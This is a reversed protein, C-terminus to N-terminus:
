LSAPNISEEIVEHDSEPDDLHARTLRFHWRDTNRIFNKKRRMHEYAANVSSAVGIFDVSQSEKVEGSATWTPTELEECAEIVFIQQQEPM